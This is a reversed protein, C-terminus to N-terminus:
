PTTVDIPLGLRERHVLYSALNSGACTMSHSAWPYARRVTVPIKFAVRPDGAVVTDFVCVSDTFITLMRLM